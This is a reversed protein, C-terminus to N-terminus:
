SEIVAKNQIILPRKAVASPTQSAEGKKRTFASASWADRWKPAATKAATNDCFIPTASKVAFGVDHLFTQLWMVECACASLAVLEAECSSLVVCKQCQSVAVVPADALYCFRERAEAHQQRQRARGIARGSGKRAVSAPGCAAGHM